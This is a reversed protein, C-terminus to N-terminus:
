TKLIPATNANNLAHYKQIGLISPNSYLLNIPFTCKQNSKMPTQNFLLAKKDCFFIFYELELELVLLLGEGFLKM